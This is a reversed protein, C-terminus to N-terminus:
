QNLLLQFIFISRITVDISITKLYIFIEKYIQTKRRNFFVNEIDYSNEGIIVDNRGVEKRKERKQPM